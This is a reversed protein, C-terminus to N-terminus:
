PWHIKSFTLGKAELVDGAMEFGLKTYFSAPSSYPKGDQRLLDDQVLMWGKLSAYSSQMDEILSRGLGKRQVQDDLIIVFWESSDRQFTCLWGLVEKTSNEVLVHRAHHLGALYEDLEDRLGYCLEQPYHANWLRFIAERDAGSLQKAYRYTLTDIM